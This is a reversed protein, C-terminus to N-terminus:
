KSRKRCVLCLVLGALMCGSGGSALREVGNRRFKAEFSRDAFTLMFFPTAPYFRVSDARTWRPHFTTRVLIPLKEEAMRSMLVSLNGNAQASVLRMDQIPVATKSKDIAASIQKWEQRVNGHDLSIWSGTAGFWEGSLDRKRAIIVAHPFDSLHQELRKYLPEGSSLLVLTHKQAFRRLKEYAAGEDDSYYTDLVLAGFNELDDLKDIKQTEAHALLVDDTGGNLQEEALRTFSYADSEREKFDIPSVVLAPLYRLIEAEPAAATKMEFVSWRDLHYETLEPEQRLRRKISPTICAIYHVGVTQARVIHQAPSQNYFDMDDALAASIGFSDGSGSLANVIPSFFVSSPSAEHFIVNLSENGQMGLYAGLARADYQDARKWPNEM